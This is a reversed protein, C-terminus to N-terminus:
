EIFCLSPAGVVQYSVGFNDVIEQASVDVGTPSWEGCPTRVYIRHGTVVFSKFDASVINLLEMTTFGSEEYLEMTDEGEDIFDSTGTGFAESHGDSESFSGGAEPLETADDPENNLNDSFVESADSTEYQPPVQQSETEFEAGIFQTEAVYNDCMIIEDLTMWPAYFQSLDTASEAYVVAANYAEINSDSSWYLVSPESCFMVVCPTCTNETDPAVEITFYAPGDCSNIDIQPCANEQSEESVFAWTAQGAIAADDSDVASDEAVVTSGTAMVVLGVVAVVAVIAVIYLSDDKVMM